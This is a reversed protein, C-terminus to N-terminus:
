YCHTLLFLGAPWRDLRPCQRQHVTGLRCQGPEQSEQSPSSQPSVLDVAAKIASNLLEVILLLLWLLSLLLSQWFPFPLLWAAPLLLCGALLEQRFASESWAYRLGSLSYRCAAFFHAAGTKPAPIHSGELGNKKQGLSKRM